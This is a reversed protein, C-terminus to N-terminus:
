GEYNLPPQLAQVQQKHIPYLLQGRLQSPFATVVFWGGSVRVM